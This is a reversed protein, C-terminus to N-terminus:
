CAELWNMFEDLSLFTRAAATVFALKAPDGALDFVGNIRTPAYDRKQDAYAFAFVGDWDQLGAIGVLLPFMEASYDSPAPTGYESVVFPKGFVRYSAMVGLTGANRASIQSTNQITWGPESAAAANAPLPADWYGHVDIFDSVEAERIVGALGGFSVQTNILMSRLKLDDRVYRALERVASRERELLYQEYDARRNPPSAFTPLEPAAEEDAPGPARQGMAVRSALFAAYGSALAARYRAPADDPSGARSPFLTDENNLEVYLLAPEDRYKVRTRSNERTLVLRAVHRQAELFPPFFRDLVKGSPFRALADGELGPYGSAAHLGLSFYIGEAKLAATFADLRDSAEPNLQGEPTLLLGAGDLGLLRVANFGMKRLHRALREGTPPDPLCASGSLNVGFFRLRHPAGRDDVFHGGDAKVFGHAGAPTENLASLDTVTPEHDLDSASPEFFNVEANIERRNGELAPFKQQAHCATAAFALM